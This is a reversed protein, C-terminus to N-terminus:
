SLLLRSFLYFLFRNLLLDIKDLLSLFVKDGGGKLNLCDLKLNYIFMGLGWNLSYLRVFFVPFKNLDSGITLRGRINLLLLYKKALCLHRTKKKSKENLALRFYLTCMCLFFIFTIQM